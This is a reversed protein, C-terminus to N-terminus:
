RALLVAVPSNRIVAASNSGLFFETIRSRGFAGMVILGAGAERAADIIKVDPRGLTSATERVSVSLGGLLRRVEDFRAAARGKDKSDVFVHVPESLRNALEVAVKAAIRSGPSGDFALVIPGSLEAGAPVVVAPKSTKRIAADVVSGILANRFDAHEGDRGLVLLGCQQAREVLRDDAFGTGTESVVEIGAARARESLRRCAADARTKLWGELGDVPRPPLGLGDDTTRYAREEVVSMGCLRTRMRAALAVSFSEAAGAAASGDTGVLISEIM